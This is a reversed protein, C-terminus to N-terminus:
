DARKQEPWPRTQWLDASGGGSSGGGGSSTVAGAGADVAASSRQVLGASQSSYFASYDGGPTSGPSTGPGSTNFRSGAVMGDGGLDEPAFAVAGSLEQFKRKVWPGLKMLGNLITKAQNKVFGTNLNARKPLLQWVAACCQRFFSSWQVLLKGLHEGLGSDCLLQYPKRLLDFLMTFLTFLQGSCPWRQVQACSRRV